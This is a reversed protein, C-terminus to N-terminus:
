SRPDSREQSHRVATMPHTLLRSNIRRLVQKSLFEVNHGSYFKTIGPLVLRGGERRDGVAVHLIDPTLSLTLLVHHHHAGATRRVGKFACSM